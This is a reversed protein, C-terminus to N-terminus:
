MKPTNSLKQKSIYIIYIAYFEKGISLCLYTVISTIFKLLCLIFTKIFLFSAFTFEYQYM